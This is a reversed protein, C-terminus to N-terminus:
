KKELRIEFMKDWKKGTVFFTERKPHYAIGNLVDLDKHPTVKKKLGSFNVVGEIAGSAADIIMVSEKLYVNAYIKGMVYELENTNKFFGKHTALEIHGIERFNEPDLTWIKQSGDSKYLVTGNNCFGWGEKSQGYTFQSIEKFTTVDFVFGKGSQWSLMHIKNNLITIGEGFIADPLNIQKLVEGTKYNVKRLSSFGNLGTSEYLTDKYFELGQTYAKSDHPYTNIIKYTYLAPPTKAFVKITESIKYKGGKYAILAELTKNGLAGVQLHLSDKKQPLIKGDVSFVISNIALNDKNQISFHVWDGSQFTKKDGKLALSFPTRNKKSGGCGLMLISLFSLTLIKYFNM